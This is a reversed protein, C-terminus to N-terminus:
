LAEYRGAAAMDPSPARHRARPVPASSSARSGAAVKADDTAAQDTSPGATPAELIRYISGRTRDSRDSNLVFGRKRLGTLAARTTHPLWNTAAVLEAITAGQARGLLAIVAATKTGARASAMSPTAALSGDSDPAPHTALKPEADTTAAAATTQAAGGIPELAASSRDDTGAAAAITKLGAATLKLAYDCGMEEDRRWVPVDKKAKVERVFGAEMLKAAAKRAPALKAGKPSTLHRDERQAAAGLLALQTENLKISM